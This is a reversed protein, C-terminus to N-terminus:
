KFIALVDSSTLRFTQLDLAETRKTKWKEPQDAETNMNYQNQKQFCSPVDNRKRIQKWMNERSPKDTWTMFFGLIQHGFVDWSTGWRSPHLDRSTCLFAALFSVLRNHMIGSTHCRCRKAVLRAKNATAKCWVRVLKVPEFIILAHKEVTYIYTELWYRQLM